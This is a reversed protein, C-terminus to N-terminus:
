YTSLLSTPLLNVVQWPHDGRETNFGSAIRQQVMSRLKSNLVLRKGCQSPLLDKIHKKKPAQVAHKTLIMPSDNTQMSNFCLYTIKKNISSKLGIFWLDTIQM